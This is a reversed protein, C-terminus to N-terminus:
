LRVGPPKVAGALQRRQSGSGLRGARSARTRRTRTTALARYATALQSELDKLHAQREAIKDGPQQYFDGQAMAAHMGASRPRRASRHAGSAGGTRAAGRLEARPGNQRGGAAPQAKRNAEAAAPSSREAPKAAPASQRDSGCGITTAASTNRRIGGDEFVITSTVVNNLFRGITASWWCRGRSSVLREELLELTESDLDNTPEDLVIVNAPKAFLRALLVRNREGGSLFKVPTRAREPSFLFDQLYGIIHRPKGGIQSRTTATPRRKGAGLGRRQAARAAPRFLRNASENGAAGPRGAAGTPGLLVAGADDQRRRQARLHRDQRRAHHHDFFRRRDAPRWLRVLRQEIEAVLM